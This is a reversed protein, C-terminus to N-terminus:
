KVYLINPNKHIIIVWNGYEWFKSIININDINSVLNELENKEFIHYYRIEKIKKDPSNFEIYNDQQKFKNKSKEPQVISWVQLFLKGGPKLIRILEKVCKLRRERTSLHHIVAVSLVYDAIDSKMPISLNSATISEISKNKTIISFNPCLDIGINFCDKRKLLHKGNGCGVEVIISNPNINELFTKVGNWLYSRSTDFHVAIKQYTDYVYDKEIKNM